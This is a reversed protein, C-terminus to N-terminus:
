PFIITFFPIPLDQYSLGEVGSSIYHGNVKSVPDQIRNPLSLDSLSDFEMKKTSPLPNTYLSM